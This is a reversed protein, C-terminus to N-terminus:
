YRGSIIYITVTVAAHPGDTIREEVCANRTLVTCDSMLWKGSSNYSRCLSSDISVSHDVALYVRSNPRLREVGSVANEADAFEAFSATSASLMLPSSVITVNNISIISNDDDTPLAKCNQVLLLDIM